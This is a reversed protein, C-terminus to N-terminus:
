EFELLVQKVQVSDGVKAHVAAVVGDAPASLVTEMKMSELVVLTDNAKVADGAQVAVKVVVGSIPSPFSKAEDISDAIKQPPQAPPRSVEISPRAGVTAAGHRPFRRRDEELVEVEVEYVKEDVTLRLKM